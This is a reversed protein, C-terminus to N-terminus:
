ELTLRLTQWAPTRLVVRLSWWGAAWALLAGVVVGLAVWWANPTWAFAFVWRALAWGVALAGVSAMFGALAGVGLLEARQMRVLLGQTAGLARYLATERERAARSAQLTAVLVVLGAAVSFAFLFEVARVVQNLVAQVQAITATTNVLTINPYARALANDLLSDNTPSRYAAIFTRPLDPLDAQTFMVFFNVRMSTWDVQRLSTIRATVPVGALDFTMRDGLKLGLTEALGDEVSISAPQNGQWQGQTVINHNPLQANYSLNFEREALRQARDGDLTEPQVPQGNLAVWRGRLMPYWDYTAVGAQRLSNQFAEAQDPQINIVFRNPADPPTAARWSAVLDTRLLLLLLLALMGVALSAVQLRVLWPRASVQRTALVWWGPAVGERVLARLARLALGTVWWCLWAVALVGGIALAGMTFDSATLLLVVVLALLGLGALWLPQAQASGMDRRIVRLPPVRVLQLVSPLGFCLLLTFALAVGLGVTGWGPAPLNTSVLAGLLWVFAQHLGFGLALGVSAALLAVGAFQWAFARVMARQSLGLVRLLACTDLRSQAYGFAGLAVALASLLVTLMAVLSLFKRARELTQNTEPRGSALTELRAGRVEDRALWAQAEAVFRQVAAPEGAVALRYTVRSAPQVLATAPLDDAHMMVRPSFSSFGTGRDTERTIQAAIRLRSDGLWLTDGLSLGLVGLLQPDVWVTGRAPPQQVPQAVGDAGMLTAKARLPYGAAVAKLAVLRAEGGREDPARAMTPFAVWQTTGLSQRQAMAVVEPPTPRDSRLVADGGLLQAADRTLGASMRDAFFSVSSLAAVALVVAVMLVRLAGSRLDRWFFRWALRWAPTPSTTVQISPSSHM